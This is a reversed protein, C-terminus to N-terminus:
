LYIIKALIHGLPGFLDWGATRVRNIDHRHRSQWTLAFPINLISDHKQILSVDVDCTMPTVRFSVRFYQVFCWIGEATYCYLIANCSLLNSVHFLMTTTAYLLFSFLQYVGSTWCPLVPHLMNVPINVKKSLFSRSQVWYYFNTFSRYLWTVNSQFM